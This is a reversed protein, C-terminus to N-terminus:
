ETVEFCSIRIKEANPFDKVADQLTRIEEKQPCVVTIDSVTQESIMEQICSCWAPLVAPADVWAFVYRIEPDPTIECGILVDKRNCTPFILYDSIGSRDYYCKITNAQYLSLVDWTEPIIRLAKPITHISPDECFRSKIKQKTLCSYGKSTISYLGVNGQLNSTVPALYNTQVLWRVTDSVADGPAISVLKKMAASLLLQYTGPKKSMEDIIVNDTTGQLHTDLFSYNGYKQSIADHRDMEMVYNRLIEQLKTLSVIDSITNKELENILSRLLPQAGSIYDHASAGTYLKANM